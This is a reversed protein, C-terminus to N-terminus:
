NANDVGFGALPVIITQGDATVALTGQLDGTSEFPKFVVFASGSANPALTGSLRNNELSFWDCGADINLNLSIAKSTQNIITVSQRSSSGLDIEGFDVNPPLVLLGHEPPPLDRGVQGVLDVLASLQGSLDDFAHGVRATQLGDPLQPLHGEQIQQVLDLLSNVVPLLNNNVALRGGDRILRPGEDTALEEIEQLVDELFM